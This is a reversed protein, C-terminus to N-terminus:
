FFIYLIDIDGEGAVMCGDRVDMNGPTLFNSEFRLSLDFPIIQMSNAARPKERIVKKTLIEPSTGVMSFAKKLFATAIM